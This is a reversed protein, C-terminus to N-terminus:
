PDHCPGKDKSRKCPSRHGFPSRWVQVYPLTVDTVLIWGRQNPLSEVVFSVVLQMLGTRPCNMQTEDSARPISSSKFLQTAGRAVYHQIAVHIFICLVEEGVM